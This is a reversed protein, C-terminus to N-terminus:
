HSGLLRARERRHAKPERKRPMEHRWNTGAVLCLGSPVVAVLYAPQRLIPTIVSDWLGALIHGDLFARVALYSYSDLNIWLNGASIPTWRGTRFFDVAEAGVAIAAIVLFFVGILRLTVMVANRKQQRVKRKRRSISGIEVNTTM